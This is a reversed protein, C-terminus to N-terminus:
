PTSNKTPSTNTSSATSTLCSTVKLTLKGTIPIRVLTYHQDSPQYHSDLGDVPLREPNLDSWQYKADFLATWTDFGEAEM